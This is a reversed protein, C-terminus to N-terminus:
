PAPAEPSKRELWVLQAVSPRAFFLGALWAVFMGAVFSFPIIWMFSIGNELGFLDKSFSVLISTLVGAFFGLLAAATGVHRFLIGALFLVGLPALFLHNVREVLEVLNWQQKAQMLENIALALGIGACGALGSTGMAPVLNSGGKKLGRFRDLFDTMVVSSISNVGSSLSSMAAALLAALLLGSLGAPLDKAIFTPLVADAEKAIERQFEQISLDSRDFYLYFLSLGVVMLMLLLAVTFGASVWVSRRASAVSPTSLYRQAAVQDASHTCAHWFFLEIIIGVVSIRVTLDWSFVPVQSRGAQSFAEWWAGPGTHTQLAVCLPVLMAGGVLLLGQVFDSWIVAQMGGATTYFTTIVGVGLIVAPMSWATMGAVALSATYIILGVWTLRMLVFVSAGVCRVSLHYRKEFYEYVSTVPLRMLAPIILRNVLPIVLVFALLSAFYGVGHRIMEGPVSLYSLTSILTAMVSVGVLLWPMRRNGLFYSQESTQRRSFYVGLCTLGALYGVIVAFDLAKLHM